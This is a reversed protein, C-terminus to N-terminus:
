KAFNAKIILTVEDKQKSTGVNFDKSNIEGNLELNLQENNEIISGSLGIEKSIGKITLTGIVLLNQGSDELYQINESIFEM